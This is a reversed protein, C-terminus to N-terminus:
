LILFEPNPFFVLNDDHDRCLGEESSVHLDSFSSGGDKKNKIGCSIQMNDPYKKLFEKLDKVTEIETVKRGQHKKYNM